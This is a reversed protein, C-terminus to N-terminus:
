SALFLYNSDELRNHVGIEAVPVTAGDPGLRHITYALEKLLAEVSQQRALRLRGQESQTEYVPLIECIVPARQQRLVSRLGQLVELEGGEVDIKIAAIEVGQLAAGADRLRVPQPRRLQRYGALSRFGPVVSASSDGPHDSFLEAQGDRDSLAAQELTCHQLGNLSMLEHLFACAFPDPEFGAWQRAPDIARVRMLTQGLNAGVDVLTGPRRLVERLVVTMWPERNLLLELGHGGAHPVRWHTSGVPVQWTRKGLKGLLRRFFFM